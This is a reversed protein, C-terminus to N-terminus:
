RNDRTKNNIKVEVAKVADAIIPSVDSKNSLRLVITDQQATYDGLWEWGYASSSNSMNNLDFKVRQQDEEGLNIQFDYSLDMNKLANSNRSRPNRSMRVMEPTSTAFYLGYRKGSTVPIKWEAYQSGDGNRIVWASFLYEGYYNQGSTLTWKYPARASSVAKYKMNNDSGKDVLLNLYGSKPPESLSFLETNENDVIIEGETNFTYSQLIYDGEAPLNSDVVEIVEEEQTQGPGGGMMGGGGGSMMGGGGSSSGGGGSRSGGGGSSSGGGGSSGGSSSSSSFSSGISSLASMMSTSGSSMMGMGGGMGMMRSNSVSASGLSLYQPINASNMTNVSVTAIATTHKVIRKIQYPLLEVILREVDGSVNYSIEVYGKHASENKIVFETAYYQEEGVYGLVTKLGGMTYYPLSLARDLLSMNSRVDCGSRSSISDLLTSMDTNKYENSEVVEKLEAMFDDYGMHSMAEGFLTNGGILIMPTIYTSYKRNDIYGNAGGEQLLMLSYEISTMGLANRSRNFSSLMSEYSLYYMEMLQNGWSLSDSIINYKSNFLISTMYHSNASISQVLGTAQSYSFSINDGTNWRGVLNRIQRLKMESESEQQRRGSTSYYKKNNAFTAAVNYNSMGLNSSAPVGGAAPVILLEPQGLEQTSCWDRKYTYLHEPADILTIRPLHYYVGSSREYDGLVDNIAEPIDEAIEELFAIHKYNSKHLYLSYVLGDVDIYFRDYDSIMLTLSRLPEEPAFSYRTGNGLIEPEGQSVPVMGELPTVTLSYQSFLERKWSASETTYTVGPRVYWRSEPTLVVWEPEVYATRRDYNLLDYAKNDFATTKDDIDIYMEREDITGEYEFNLALQEGAEARNALKVIILHEVREFQLPMAGEGMVSKVEMGGNLNFVLENGSKSVVGEVRMRTSISYPKQEVDIQYNAVELIPYEAYQSNVEILRSAIRGPASMDLIYGSIWVGSLSFAAVSLALFVRETTHSNALRKFLFVSLLMASFGVLVYAIQHSVVMGINSIGVVDSKALPINLMFIDFIHGWYDGIYAISLASFGLMIIYTLAQNGVVLMLATSVGIFFILSPIIIIGIYLLYDLVNADLEYGFKAIVFVIMAVVIDTILFPKMTGLVKGFLYEANSLPRVYFVESTDLQKDRKLYDASMFIIVASQMINLVLMAMYPILTPSNTLNALMNTIIQYSIGVLVVAFFLYIKFFWSRALLKSEYKAVSNINLFIQKIM